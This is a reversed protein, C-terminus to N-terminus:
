NKRKGNEEKIKNLMLVFRKISLTDINIPFGQYVEVFFVLDEFNTKGKPVRAKLEKDLLTIQTKFKNLRTIALDLSELYESRSNINLTIGEKLLDDAYQQNYRFYLTFCEAKLLEYLNETKALRRLGDFYIKYDRDKSLELFEEWINTWVEDLSFDIKPLMEYDVGKLLWRLDETDLIKYFNRVPLFEISAYWKLQNPNVTHKRQLITGVRRLGSSLSMQRKITQM